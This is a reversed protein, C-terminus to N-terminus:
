GEDIFCAKYANDYAAFRFLGEVGKEELLKGTQRNQADLEDALKGTTELSVKVNVGRKVAKALHGLIRIPIVTKTYV